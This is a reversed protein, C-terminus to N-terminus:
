ATVKNMSWVALPEGGTANIPTLATFTVGLKLAATRTLPTEDTETVVGRPIYFRHTLEPGDKFEIGLAREDPRPAAAIEINIGAATNSVKGGGFFFPLTDPNVQLLGFKLSFDRDSFVYRIAAVTQWTDVADLKDKRVFKVGDSATYGLDVWPAAWDKTFDAPAATHAPALLIRGTGAVRIESANMGPM